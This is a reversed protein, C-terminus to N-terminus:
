TFIEIFAFLSIVFSEPKKDCLSVYETHLAIFTSLKKLGCVCYFSPKVMLRALYKMSTLYHIPLIMQHLDEWTFATYTKIGHTKRTPCRRSRSCSVPSSGHVWPRYVEACLVNLCDLLVNELISVTTM